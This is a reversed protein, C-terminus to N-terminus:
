GAKGKTKQRAVAIGLKEAVKGSESFANRLQGLAQLSREIDGDILDDTSARLNFIRHAAKRMGAQFEERVRRDDLNSALANLAARFEPETAAWFEDAPNQGADAKVTDPITYRGDKTRVGYLATRVAVRTASAAEGGAEVLTAILKLREERDDSDLGPLWPAIQTVWRLAKMNDMDYGVASLETLARSGSPLFRARQEIFTAVCQARKTKGDPSLAWLAPWDRWSPPGSRAHMPLDEGSPARYYPSLPHKWGTYNVGWPKTRYFRTMGDEDIRLRIRRPMGFFAQFPHALEPTFVAQPDGKASSPTQGLYPFIRVWDSIPDDPQPLYDSGAAPVNTWLRDWLTVIADAGKPRRTAILTTFPGGGRMSTRHGAGGSPSYTQLTILAAAAEAMTLAREGRKVFLDTNKKVTSEGPFEILMQTIATEDADALEDLDQFCRAGEGDLNFAFALPALAAKLAEPTPPNSWLAAWNEPTAPAQVVALLGILFETVAANWDPRPFDLAVIPDPEFGSNIQHPAIVQVAGSLRRAPLWAREILNFTM